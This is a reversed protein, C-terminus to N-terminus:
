ALPSFFFFFFFFCFPFPFFFFFFVFFFFREENNPQNLNFFPFNTPYSLPAEGALSESLM